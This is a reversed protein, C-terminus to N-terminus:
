RSVSNSKDNDLLELYEDPHESFHELMCLFTALNMEAPKIGLNLLVSMVYTRTTRLRAVQNTTTM